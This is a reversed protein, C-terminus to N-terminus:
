WDPRGITSRPLCLRPRNAFPLEILLAATAGGSWPREEGDEVVRATALLHPCGTSAEAGCFPCHCLVCDTCAGALLPNACASCTVRVLVDLARQAREIAPSAISSVHEGGNRSASVPSPTAGTSPHGGPAPRDVRHARGNRVASRRRLRRHRRGRM